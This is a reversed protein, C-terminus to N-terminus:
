LFNKLCESQENERLLRLYSTEMKKSSYIHLMQNCSGETKIRGLLQRRQKELKSNVKYSLLWHSDAMLVTVIRFHKSKEFNGWGAHQRQRSPSLTLRFTRRLNWSRCFKSRKMYDVTRMGKEGGKAGRKNIKGRIITKLLADM